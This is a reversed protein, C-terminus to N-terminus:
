VHSWETRSLIRSIHGPSVSFEKAIHKQKIGKKDLKRIEKIDNESLKFRKSPKHKNFFKKRQSPPMDHPPSIPIAKALPKPKKRVIVTKVLM